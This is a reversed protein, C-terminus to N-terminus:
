DEDLEHRLFVFILVFILVFLLLGASMRLHVPQVRPRHPLSRTLLIPDANTGPVSCDCGPGSLPGVRAQGAAWEDKPDDPMLAAWRLSKRGARRAMARNADPKHFSDM